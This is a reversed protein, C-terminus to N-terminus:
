PLIKLDEAAKEEIKAKKAKADEYTVLLVPKYPKYSGIYASVDSRTGDWNITISLDGRYVAVGWSEPYKKDTDNLWEFKEEKPDGFRKVLDRKIKVLDEMRDQPRPYKKESFIRVRYLKDDEFEYTISSRIGRITDVYFLAGNSEEVFIAKEEELIISRPLGWVFGRVDAQDLIESADEYTLKEIEQAYSISCFVSVILFLALIVRM